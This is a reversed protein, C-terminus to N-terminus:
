ATMSIMCVYYTRVHTRYWNIYHQVEMCSSLFGECESIMCRANWELLDCISYVYRKFMSMLKDAFTLLIIFELQSLIM